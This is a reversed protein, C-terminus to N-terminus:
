LGSDSQIRCPDLSPSCRTGPSGRCTTGPARSSPPPPPECKGGSNERAQTARTNERAHARAAAQTGSRQCRPPQKSSGPRTHAKYGSIPHGKQGQKAVISKTAIIFCKRRPLWLPSSNHSSCRTVCSHCSPPRGAPAADAERNWSGPPSSSRESNAATSTSGRM